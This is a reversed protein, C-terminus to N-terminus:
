GRINDPRQLKTLMEKTRDFNKYFAKDGGRAIIEERLFKDGKGTLKFTDFVDNGNKSRGVLKVWNNELFKRKFMKWFEKQVTHTLHVGMGVVEWKEHINNDAFISLVNFQEKTLYSM